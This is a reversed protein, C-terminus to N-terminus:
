AAYSQEFERVLSRMEGLATAGLTVEDGPELYTPPIMGLGVGPPTGTNILDGPELVFFQSLYIVLDYIDFIMDTTSGSQRRQGNVSLWMDIPKSLDLEDITLLHPGCPNFTESSKGKIWQGGRELQSERESVDNVLVLGAIAQRAEYRSQLYSTRRGIVVGIEVEYDLKKSGPPRLVDDNPGVITNPAKSFVIPEEPVDMRSEAAHDAYNLGICLIQHPRAIPAGIRTEGILTVNGRAARETVVRSLFDANTRTFYREDFDPVIDGVEVVAGPAVMVVPREAGYEGIRMLKM